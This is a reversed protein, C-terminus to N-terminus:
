PSRARRRSSSASRSRSHLAARDRVQRGLARQHKAGGARLLPDAGRGAGPEAAAGDEAAQEPGNRGKARGEITLFDDILGLTGTAVIIGLPLFISLKDFLNTPATVLFVTGFILLGGMTPTGAKVAHSAPADPSIQKGLGRASLYAVVWKGAILSVIFAATGVFLAYVMLGEVGASDDGAGNGAVGEAARRRRRAARVGVAAGGGGEIALPQGGPHGARKAEEGILHGLEGVAYIVQAM